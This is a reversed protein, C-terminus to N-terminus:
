SNEKIQNLYIDFDNMRQEEIASIILDKKADNFGTFSKDGIITYPIGKVTDNMEEAFIELLEANDDNFWVEFTYLNFYQGYEEEIEQFFAHEEACHPCGDGWFFYINVKQEEKKIKELNVSDINSVNVITKNNTDKTKDTNDSNCGTLLTFTILLLIEIKKIM